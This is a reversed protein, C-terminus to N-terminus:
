VNNDNNGIIPSNDKYKLLHKNSRNNKMFPPYIIKKKIKNSNNIIITPKDSFFTKSEDIKDSFNNQNKLNEFTEKKNLFNKYFHDLCINHFEKMKNLVDNNNFLINKNLEYGIEKFNHIIEYNLNNEKKAKEYIFLMENFFQIQLLTIKKMNELIKNIDKIMDDIEILNYKLDAFKVVIDNFENDKINYDDINLINHSIHQEYCKDCLNCKCEICYKKFLLNHEFCNSDFDINNLNIHNKNSHYKRCKQCIFGNCKICFIKMKDCPCHCTKCEKRITNNINSNLFQDLTIKGNHNNSCSYELFVTDEDYSLSLLLIKGCIQCRKIKFQHTSEDVPFISFLTEEISELM